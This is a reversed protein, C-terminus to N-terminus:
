VTDRLINWRYVGLFNFNGAQPRWRPSPHRMLEDVTPRRVEGPSKGIPGTHYVLRPSPDPEFQSKGLYIMAHFPMNQELQRFFFLDGPQARGIDRTVLWTNRRMLTEADAFQAFTGDSLDSPALPGPKVRFLGADLLTYPYRYKAIGGLMPASALKVAAAWGADHDRLAERYAFRLLAACDNVEPLPTKAFYQSEALFTFWQTFAFRDAPDDLRLVDPTGDADADSLDPTLELPITIPKFGEATFRLKVLGPQVGARIFLDVKDQQTGAGALTARHIGEVFETSFTSPLNRSGRLVIHVRSYGDAVATKPASEVSLSAPGRPGCGLATLLLVAAGARRM